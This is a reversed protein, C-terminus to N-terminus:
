LLEAFTQIRTGIQEFSPTGPDTEVCLSKMGEARFERLLIPYDFAEPDCHKPMCVIVADAGYKKATDILMRARPKRENFALPCGDFRIWQRALALLPDADDPVDERIQRSEQALDDAVIAFGNEELIHLVEEPETMIGSVLIKRGQFDPLPEARVAEMLENVLATHASKEMFWRARFVTHRWSPKILGAYQACADSFARCAARNENYIRISAKLADTSISVRLLAELKEKVIRYEERAFACAAQESDRRNQPHTFVIAPVGSSDWKQSLCKLTDCPVSFVVADLDRYAGLAELETISQAVSCVFSPWAARTKTISINPSGWIGLPLFGTAHIIEEPCYVPMVGVVGKGTRERYRLITRAPSAICQKFDNMIKPITRM